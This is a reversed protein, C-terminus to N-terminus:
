AEYDDNMTAFRPDAGFAPNDFSPQEPMSKSTSTKNKRLYLVTLMAVTAAIILVIATAVLAKNSSSKHSSGSGPEELSKPVVGAPVLVADIVHVIGNSAMINATSVTASGGSSTLLTVTGSTGVNVTLISGDMMTLNQSSPVRLDTSMIVGSAFVHYLLVQTLATTNSNLYSLVSSPVANFAANTPAFVTFTGAGSLANVLNASTLLQTLTSLSPTASALAAISQISGTTFPAESTSSQSTSSPLIGAPILVADILHVVGNSAMVNATTVTATIGTNTVLTISGSSAVNVTLPSGDMM